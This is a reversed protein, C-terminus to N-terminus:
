GASFKKMAGQPLAEALDGHQRLGHRDEGARMPMADIRTTGRLAAASTWARQTRTTASRSQVAVAQSV